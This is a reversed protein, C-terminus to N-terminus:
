ADLERIPRNRRQASSRQTRAVGEIKEIAGESQAWGDGRRQSRGTIVSPQPMRPSETGSMPRRPATRQALRQAKLISADLEDAKAALRQREIQPKCNAVFKTAIGELSSGAASGLAILALRQRVAPDLLGQLGSRGMAAILGKQQHFRRGRQLVQLLKNRAFIM